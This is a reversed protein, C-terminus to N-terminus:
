AIRHMLYVKHTTPVYWPAYFKLLWLPNKPDQITKTFNDKGLPVPQNPITGISHSAAAATYFSVTTWVLCLRFLLATMM